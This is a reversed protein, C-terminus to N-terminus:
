ECDCNECHCSESDDKCHCEDTKGCGPCNCEDGDCNCDDCTCIECNCKVDENDEVYSIANTPCSSVANKCEETEINENSIVESLGNDNFDFHAGDIAVCAGCGICAEENVNLKKM